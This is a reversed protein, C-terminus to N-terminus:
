NKTLYKEWKDFMEQIKAVIESPISVSLLLVQINSTLWNLVINSLVPSIVSDEHVGLYCLSRRESMLSM